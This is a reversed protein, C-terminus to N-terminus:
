STLHSQNASHRPVAQAGELQPTPVRRRRNSLIPSGWLSGMTASAGGEASPPSCELRATDRHKGPLEIASCSALSASHRLSITIETAADHRTVRTVGRQRRRTSLCEQKRLVGRHSAGQGRLRHRCVLAATSAFAALDGDDHTGVARETCAVRRHEAADTRGWENNM